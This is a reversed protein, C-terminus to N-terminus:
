RPAARDIEPWEAADEGDLRLTLCKASGGAKIFEGLETSHPRYGASQLEDSLRPCGTNVIVDRGLVVANCAFRAAEAPEVAILTPITEVLARRAYDDFAPPFYIAETASLPCFCTDLHYYRDDVLQLPLIRCGIQTGLWQLASADSRILYGGYLTRGCFLADGAGEFSWDGPCLRTEFMEGRFWADDVLTEGQRAQYRFRSIFAVDQWILGANATFVLDPLGRVPTMLRVDAGLRDLLSKLDYWQARALADDSQRSRSMWPNIEYEIGYFDPPCMLITPRAFAPM